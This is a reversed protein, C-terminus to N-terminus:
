KKIKLYNLIDDYLGSDNAYLAYNKATNFWERTSPKHKSIANLLDRTALPKPIGSKFSEQLKEEISIDVVAKIDAGSFADSKKALAQYDIQEQPKGKLIIEYIVAKSETDPPEVFIIRDFRGPRRFAPDLHWPANTAGLILVGDNNNDVGDMESLFQNILHRGSAQRMDSRSAGLADVEDFFLVCPTNRRAVEFIEHLNRESNGVWMDLIDNIGVSIFNSSIEGATAKALYTKGCGPPGYLLIGGGTKKGYAKYLDAHQLPKIIKLDIETKVRAMGGVDTFNIAPKLLIRASDTNDTDEEPEHGPGSYNRFMSDLQEDKFAPDLSVIKQYVSRSKETLGDELLAKSYLLLFQINSPKTQLLEELIVISISYKKQQYYVNALKFRANSNDGPAAIIEKLQQEAESYKQQQMFLEALQMKLPLNNPSFGLAELLNKILDDTSM